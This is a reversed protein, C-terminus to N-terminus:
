SKPEECAKMRAHIEDIVEKDKDSIPYQKQQEQNHAETAAWERMVTVIAKTDGNLANVMLKRFMAEGAPVKTKRGKLQVPINEQLVAYIMDSRSKAGKPRGAKNGSTGEAFRGLSTRKSTDSSNSM